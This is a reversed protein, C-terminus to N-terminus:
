CQYIIHYYDSIESGSNEEVLLDLKNRRHGKEGKGNEGGRKGKENEGGRQSNGYQARGSKSGLPIVDYYQHVQFTRIKPMPVLSLVPVDEDM